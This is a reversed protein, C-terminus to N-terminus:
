DLPLDEPLPIEQPQAGIEQDWSEFAEADRSRHEGAGGLALLVLREPGHERAPAEIGPAVRILEGEGIEEEAGDIGITLEGELM